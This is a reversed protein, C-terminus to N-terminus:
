VDSLEGSQELEEAYMYAFMLFNYRAAQSEKTSYKDNYLCDYVNKSKYFELFEKYGRGMGLENLFLFVKNVSVNKDSEFQCICDCIYENSRDPLCDFYENAVIWIIESIKM